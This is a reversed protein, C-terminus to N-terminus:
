NLPVYFMHTYRNEIVATKRKGSVSNAKVAILGSTLTLAFFKM